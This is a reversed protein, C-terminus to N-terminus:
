VLKEQYDLKEEIQHLVEDGIRNERWLRILAQREARIAALRLKRAPEIDEGPAHDEHLEVTAKEAFEDRVREALEPSIREREAVQAITEIAAAALENSAEAYEQAHSWDDGVKLRRILPGLTLGQIVLTVAIVAFTLLIVLDRHPFATGDPMLAPLALAAALSVIGRMGCWSMIFVEPESPRESHPGSRRGGALWPVYSAFYVWIFRIAIAVTSVMTGYMLLQGPTYGALRDLVASLQVGILIFVLSNLLFVLINWVSRALIRMDASVIEPSYRGRVLGAAVVALVGSLHVMEALVYAAYPVALNMLVEIFADGLRKHIFMFVWALAIGLLTGGVSVV